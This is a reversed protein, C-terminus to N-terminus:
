EAPPKCVGCPKYGAGRADRVSKFKVLDAPKIQRGWRCEPLHYM